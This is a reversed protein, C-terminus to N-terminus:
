GHGTEIRDRFICGGSQRPNEKARIPHIVPMGNDSFETFRHGVSARQQARDKIGGDCAASYLRFAGLYDRGGALSSLFNGRRVCAAYDGRDCETDGSPTKPGSVRAGDADVLYIQGTPHEGERSAPSLVYAVTRGDPSLALQSVTALTM